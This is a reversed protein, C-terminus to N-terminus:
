PTFEEAIFQKLQLFGANSRALWLLLDGGHQSNETRGFAPGVKSSLICSTTDKTLKVSHM